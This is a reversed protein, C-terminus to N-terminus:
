HVGLIPFSLSPEITIVITGVVPHFSALWWLVKKDTSHSIKYNNNM